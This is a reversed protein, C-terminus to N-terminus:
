STKKSDRRYMELAVENQIAADHREYEDRENQQRVDEVIESTKLDKFADRLDERATAIHERVEDLMHALQLRREKEWTAYQGYLRGAGTPDAAAAQREKHGQEDLANLFGIVHAESELLNALVRQKEDVHWKRLRILSQLTQSM